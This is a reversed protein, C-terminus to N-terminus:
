EERCSARGIQGAGSSSDIFGDSIDTVVQLLLKQKEVAAQDSNRPNTQVIILLKAGSPRWCEGRRIKEFFDAGLQFATIGLAKSRRGQVLQEERRGETARGETIRVETRLFTPFYVEADLLIEEGLSDFHTRVIEM